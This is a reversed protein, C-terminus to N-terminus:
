GLNTEVLQNAAECTITSGIFDNGTVIARDVGGDVKLAVSGVNKGLTGFTNGRVQVRGGTFEMAPLGADWAEITSDSIAVLPSGNWQVAQKFAGWVSMGRVVLGTGGGGDSVTCNPCRIGVQHCNAADACWSGANALNLNSFFAGSNQVAQVEVGVDVADFNLDTFQGNCAGFESEALVLGRGYGWSFVDEVVEWDTRALRLSAGHEAIWNQLPGVVQDGDAAWFNWFHIHRIRGVDYCQDVFIGTKLPNGYVDSVLHRGAPFTGLDIAQFPNVLYMNQISVDDGTGRVTWPYEVPEAADPGAQEPYVISMGALGANSGQLLIFPDGGADGAAEYAQLTTGVNTAGTTGYNRYPFNNVGRLETNPPVVLHGRIAYTGAPVLVVGSGVAGAQDLAAQFAATDDTGDGLAGFDTVDLAQVPGGGSSSNSVAATAAAVAADAASLVAACALATLISHM